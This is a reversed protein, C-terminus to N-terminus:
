KHNENHNKFYSELIPAAWAISICLPMTEPHKIANLITTLENERIDPNDEKKQYDISISIFAPKELPNHVIKIVGCRYPQFPIPNHKMKFLEYYGIVFDQHQYWSCHEVPEVPPEFKWRWNWPINNGFLNTLYEKWDEIM